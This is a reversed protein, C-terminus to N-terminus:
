ILLFAARRNNVIQKMEKKMIGVAMWYPPFSWKNLGIRVKSIVGIAHRKANKPNKPKRIIGIGGKTFKKPEKNPFQIRKKAGNSKAKAKGFHVM